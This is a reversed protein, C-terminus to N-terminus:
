GAGVSGITVRVGGAIVKDIGTAFFLLRGSRVARGGGTQEVCRLGERTDASRYICVADTIETNSTAGKPM